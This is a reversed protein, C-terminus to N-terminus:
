GNGSCTENFSSALLNLSNKKPFIRSMRSFSSILSTLFIETALKLILFTWTHLKNSGTDGSITESNTLFAGVFDQRRSERGVWINLSHRSMREGETVSITLEEEMLPTNGFLQLFAMIVGNSFFDPRSVLRLFLGIDLRGKM